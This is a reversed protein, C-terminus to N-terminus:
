ALKGVTDFFKNIEQQIVFTSQNVFQNIFGFYSNIFSNCDKSKIMKKIYYDPPIKNM